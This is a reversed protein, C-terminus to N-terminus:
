QYSERRSSYIILVQWVLMQRGVNHRSFRFGLRVGSNGRDSYNLRTTAPQRPQGNASASMVDSLSSASLPHQQQRLERLQDIVAALSQGRILQMAYFHVGREEGVSYVSVINPHDLSAAARVENRFRQLRKEDVMAAFPLVKLAVKRGGMSIQEAEYVIGMGGRGLEHLIHFDGLRKEYKEGLTQAGSSADAMSDSVIQLAPLAQRILQSIEPHRQAYEDIDPTEGRALREFFETAVQGLLQDLDQAAAAETNLKMSPKGVQANNDIAVLFSGNKCPPEALSRDKTRM